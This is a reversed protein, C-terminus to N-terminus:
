LIELLRVDVIITKGALPHNCDMVFSTPSKDIVTVTVAKGDARYMQVQEGVMPDFGEPARSRDFQFIREERRPGFAEEMPIRISKSEGTGMGVINKELFPLYEDKGLSLEMPPHGESSEYVTGDDLRIVYHVRVRNGEKATAM